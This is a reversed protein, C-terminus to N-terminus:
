WSSGAALAVEVNFGSGLSPHCNACRDAGTIQLVARPGPGLGLRPPQISVGAM